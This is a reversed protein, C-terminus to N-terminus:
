AQVRRDAARPDPKTLFHPAFGVAAAVRAAATKQDLPKGNTGGLLALTREATLVSVDLGRGQLFPIWDLLLYALVTPKVNVRGDLAEFTTFADQTFLREIQVKSLGLAAYREEKEWLPEPQAGRARTFCDEDLVIPPLDTDPYMRDPGPLMREFLTSGDPLSKRTERPVCTLAERMRIRIEGLATTVDGVPGAVIVIADKAGTKTARRVEDFLAGLTFSEPCDSHAMNPKRDICAIVKIRDSIENGFTRHPATPFSLLGSCNRLVIARATTGGGWPMRFAPHTVKKAQATVDLETDFDNATIGRARAAEKIDLLAKQRLAEFHVLAPLLRLSSVGKIEVRDGGTISVNVDQRARGHGTRVQGSLHCLRRIANGVRAADEPTHMQAETVIEILPISLRDTIYTRRHGHDSAERCADEELGLQRIDIRRGDVNMWGNIGIICTRQFGTPISGDLYQKRAIHIEDVLNLNLMMGIVLARDLAERNLGFPPADDMEYTCVTERNLRYVIEKKTKFEMLATPDYEGLESLTPRMHRLIEAHFVDNYPKVPCKCFLKHRTFVQRHMEIGCKLGLAQYFEPEAFRSAIQPLNAPQGAV